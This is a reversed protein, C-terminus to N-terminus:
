NKEPGNYVFHKSRMSDINVFGFADTKVDRVMWCEGKGSKCIKRQLVELKDGPSVSFAKKRGRFVKDSEKIVIYIKTPPTKQSVTNNIEPQLSSYVRHYTQMQKVRVAGKEGTEINKIMWCKGSGGRCTNSSLVELTDGTNVTYKIRGYTFVVDPEQIEIYTRESTSSIGSTIVMPLKSSDTETFVISELLQDLIKRSNAFNGEVDILEFAYIHEKTDIQLDLRKIVLESDSTTCTTTSEMEFYKHKGRFLGSNENDIKHSSMCHQRDLENRWKLVGFKIAEKTSYRSAEKPQSTSLITMKSNSSTQWSGIYIGGPVTEGTPLTSSTTSLIRKWNSPPEMFSFKQEPIQILGQQGTGACGCFLILLCITIIANKM